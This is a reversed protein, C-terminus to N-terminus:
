RKAWLPRGSGYTIPITPTAKRTARKDQAPSVSLVPEVMAELGSALLSQRLAHAASWSHEHPTSKMELVLYDPGKELIEIDEGPNIDKAPPAKWTVILQANRKVKVEDWEEEKTLNRGVPAPQLDPARFGKVATADPIDILFPFATDFSPIIAGYEFFNPRPYYYRERIADILEPANKKRTTAKQFLKMFSETFVGNSEGDFTTQDDQCAALLKVAAKVDAAQAKKKFKQQVPAYVSDGYAVMIEQENALPLKRSRLGRMETAKELGAALHESLNDPSKLVRAITGSHCSDSVILIRTGERFARFAEFLEDDLLERDYLCWTQDNRENDLGAAKENAIQSGHGAYTLLLIDGPLLKGAYESLAGLVTDATAEENHLAKAAYGSQEAYEKWFKADNVAAKLDPVGFYHAKDLKNLGIHLSYGKSM